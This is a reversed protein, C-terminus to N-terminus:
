FSVGLTTALAPILVNVCSWLQTEEMQSLRHGEGDAGNAGWPALSVLGDARM